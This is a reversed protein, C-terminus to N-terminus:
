DLTTHLLTADQCWREVTNEERQDQAVSEMLWFIANIVVESRIATQEFKGAESSLCLHASHENTLQEESVIDNMSNMQLLEVLSEHDM